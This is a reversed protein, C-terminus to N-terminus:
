TRSPVISPSPTFPNTVENDVMVILSPFASIVKNACRNCSLDARATVISCLRELFRM